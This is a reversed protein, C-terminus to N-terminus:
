AAVPPGGCPRDLDTDIMSSAMISLCKSQSEGPGGTESRVSSVRFAAPGAVRRGPGEDGPACAQNTTRGTVDRQVIGQRSDSGAVLVAVLVVTFHRENPM